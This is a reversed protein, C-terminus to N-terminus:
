TVPYTLVRDASHGVLRLGANECSHARSPTRKIRKKANDPVESLM